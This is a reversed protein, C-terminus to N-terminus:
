REPPRVYEGVLVVNANSFPENYRAQRLLQKTVPVQQWHNAADIRRLATWTFQAGRTGRVSPTTTSNQADMTSAVYADCYRNYGVPVTILLKGGPQLLGILHEVAQKIKTTDKQPEDWGVHELTSVSIICQFRQQARPPKFGVVDVNLVGPAREYKDVVMHRPKGTEADLCEPVYHSLVNGVELIHGASGNKTHTKATRSPHALHHQLVQAALAVEVARENMWTYNYAHVFYHYPQGKWFFRQRNYTLKVLLVKCFKKLAQIM